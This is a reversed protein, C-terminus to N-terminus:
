HRGICCPRRRFHRQRSSWEREAVRKCDRTNRLPKASGRGFIALKACMGDRQDRVSAFNARCVCPTVRSCDACRSGDDRLSCQSRRQTGAACPHVSNGQGKKMIVPALTADVARRCVRDFVTDYVQPNVDDLIQGLEVITEMAGSESAEEGIFVRLVNAWQAPDATGAGYGVQRVQMSPLCGFDTTVTQAPWGTPTTLEREPGKPMFRRRGRPSGRSAGPVPLAGHASQLMGSGVNIASATVGSISFICAWSGM